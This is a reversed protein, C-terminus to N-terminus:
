GAGGGVLSMLSRESRVLAGISFLGGSFQTSELRWGSADVRRHTLDHVFFM